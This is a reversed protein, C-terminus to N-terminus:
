LQFKCVPKVCLRVYKVDKLNVKQLIQIYHVANIYKRCTHIAFTHLSSYIYMFHRSYLSDVLKHLLNQIQQSFDKM